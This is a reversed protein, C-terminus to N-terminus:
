NKLGHGRVARSFIERHAATVADQTKRGRRRRRDRQNKRRKERKDQKYTKKDPPPSSPTKIIERDRSIENGMKM